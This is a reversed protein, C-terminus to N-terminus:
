DCCCCHLTLLLILDRTLLFLFPKISINSVPLSGPTLVILRNWRLTVLCLTILYLVFHLHSTFRHYTRTHHYVVWVCLSYLNFHFRGIIDAPSPPHPFCVVTSSFSGLWRVAQSIVSPHIPPLTIIGLPPFSFFLCRHILILGALSCSFPPLGGDNTYMVEGGESWWRV